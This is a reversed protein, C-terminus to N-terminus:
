QEVAESISKVQGVVEGFSVFIHLGLRYKRGSRFPYTYLLRYQRSHMDNTNKNKFM